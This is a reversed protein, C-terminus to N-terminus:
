RRVSMGKGLGVAFVRAAVRGVKELRVKSRGIGCPAEAAPFASQVGEIGQPSHVARIGGGLSSYFREVRGLVFLSGRESNM